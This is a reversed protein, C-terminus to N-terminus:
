LRMCSNTSECSRDQIRKASKCFYRRFPQKQGKKAKRNNTQKNVCTPCLIRKNKRVRKIAHIQLKSDSDNTNPSLKTIDARSIPLNHTHTGKHNKLQESKTFQWDRSVSVPPLSRSCGDSTVTSRPSTRIYLLGDAGGSTFTLTNARIQM